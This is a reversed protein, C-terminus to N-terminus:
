KGVLTSASYSNATKAKAYSVGTGGSNFMMSPATNMTVSNATTHTHHNGWTKRKYEEPETARM